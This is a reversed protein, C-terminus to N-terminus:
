EYFPVWEDQERETQNSPVYFKAMHRPHMRYQTKPVATAGASAIENNGPKILCQHLSVQQSIKEYFPVWENQERETQYSPVHFNPWIDHTCEISHTSCRQPGLVPYKM